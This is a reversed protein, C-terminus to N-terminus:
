FTGELAMGAPGVTMRATVTSPHHSRREHIEWVVGGVLAVGGVVFAINALLAYREADRQFGQALLGSTQPDNAQDHKHSSEYALGGGAGAIAIGGGILVWPMRSPPTDAQAHVPQPEAPRKSAEGTDPKTEVKPEPKADPKMEVNADPKTEVNADPKTKTEPTTEAKAADPESGSKQERAIQAKLTTIRREIAGRDEIKTATALYREYADIAGAFDGMGELSRGLNYLLNAQPYLAYAQRLLAASVEFEGQKYHQAGEAALHAARQKDKKVDAAAPASWAAVIVAAVMWGARWTM